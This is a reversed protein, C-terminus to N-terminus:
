KGKNITDIINQLDDDVNQLGQLDLADPNLNAIAEIKSNLYSYQTPSKAVEGLIFAFKKVISLELNERQSTPRINLAEKMIDIIENNKLDEDSNILNKVKDIKNQGMYATLLSKKFILSNEPFKSICKKALPEAKDFMKHMLYFNIVRLYIMSDQPNLNLLKKHTSEALDIKDQKEYAEALTIYAEFCIPNEKILKRLKRVAEKYLAPDQKQGGEYLLIQAEILARPITDEEQCMASSTFSFMLVCVTSFLFLKRLM